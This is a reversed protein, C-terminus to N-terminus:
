LKQNQFAELFGTKNKITNNKWSRSRTGPPIPEVDRLNKSVDFHVPKVIKTPSIMSVQAQLVSAPFLVLMSFSLILFLNKKM